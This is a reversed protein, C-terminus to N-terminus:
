PLGNPENRNVHVITIAFKCYYLVCIRCKQRVNIKYSCAIVASLIQMTLCKYPVLCSSVIQASMM